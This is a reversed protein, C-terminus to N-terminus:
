IIRILIGITAGVLLVSNTIFSTAGGPARKGGGPAAYGIAYWVRGIVWVLGIGAGWSPSVYESFLLLCPIFIVLQELTNQQARFVREFDVNGTTAPAAIAYKRRARSVQVITWIYMAIALCVILAPLPHMTAFEPPSQAKM